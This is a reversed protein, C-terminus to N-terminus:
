NNNAPIGTFGSSFQITAIKQIARFGSHALVKPESVIQKHPWLTTQSARQGPHRKNASRLGVAVLHPPGSAPPMGSM